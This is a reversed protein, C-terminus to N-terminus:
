AYRLQEQDYDRPWLMLVDPTAGPLCPSEEGGPLVWVPLRYHPVVLLGRYWLARTQVKNMMTQDAETKKM